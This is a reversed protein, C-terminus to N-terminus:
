NQLSKFKKRFEDGRHEYNRFQDFSSCGPSLLVSDGEKAERSATDFADGFLEFREFLFFPSLEAEMRSAAEGYAIIKKVIGEFKKIWRQYSAGKDVGGAILIVPGKFLEMAHLVADVNTGKSDNFYHVGRAEGIWEIRHHPKKFDKIAELFRDKGVGFEACLAEAAQVNQREPAGLQIYELWSNPALAEQDYEFIEFGPKLLDGYEEAVQKSVFLKDSCNQIKAKAAAYDRMTPYRDLHDPTLNLYVSAKLKKAQLTDLQFSSLEVVLVEEPNPALLYQSLPTGINGVAKARIGSANLVHEVLMTVTTKGNTGTIGVCQNEVLRFALETEGIVEISSALAKQVIPHSFAIGPSIVVQEIGDVCFDASDLLVGDAPSKDVAVVGFGRSRLLAASAKGSVGYGLVLVKAM